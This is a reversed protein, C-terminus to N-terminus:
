GRCTQIFGIRRAHSTYCVLLACDQIRCPQEVGAQVLEGKGRESCGRETYGPFPTNYSCCQACLESHISPLQHQPDPARCQPLRLGNHFHTSRQSLDDLQFFLTYPKLHHRPPHIPPYLPSPSLCTNRRCCPRPRRSRSRLHQPLKVKTGTGDDDCSHM